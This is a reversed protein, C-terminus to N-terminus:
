NPRVDNLLRAIAKKTAADYATLKRGLTEAQERQGLRLLAEVRVLEAEIRLEPAPFRQEHELLSKLATEPDEKVEVRAREVLATERALAELDLGPRPPRTLQGSPAAPAAEVIASAPPSPEEPSPLDFEREQPPPPPGQPPPQQDAEAQTPPLSAEDGSSLWWMAGLLVFLGLLAVGFWAKM